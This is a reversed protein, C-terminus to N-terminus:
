RRLRARLADFRQRQSEVIREAAALAARIAAFDEDNTPAAAREVELADLDALVRSAAARAAEVRSLAEQAAVWSEGGPAGASRAAVTARAYATEFARDGGRAAVLLEDARTRLSRDAAVAPPINVPEELPDEAEIPRSALSPFEGQPRCGAAFAAAALGALLALRSPSPVFAM